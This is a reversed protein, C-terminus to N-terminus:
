RSSGRRSGSVTVGRRAIAADLVLAGESELAAAVARRRGERAFAVLCGGGGAGCVKVGIAGARRAAAGCAALKPTSVSPALRNRLRGEEGLLRGAADVDGAALADRTERAIAAIAEMGSVTRREGDVYRRFMDWNSFGSQRPEGTYALVLREELGEPIALPERRWGDVEHWFASLGGHMAALYDQNGTPVRIERTEANQVRRLLAERSLREGCARDLASALAVGLASSGGLGAGAPAEARLTITLGSKPLAFSSALRLPWSLAGTATAPDVPLGRTARRGRDLSVIALKGDRRPEITANAHLTVALNVTVAREVMQSIPWLDLTGGALDIRTPAKARITGTM